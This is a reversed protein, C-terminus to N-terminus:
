HLIRRVGTSARHWITAYKVVGGAEKTGLAEASRGNGVYVSVHGEYCIIDGWRLEDTVPQGASAQEKSTRPLSVGAAKFIQCVLGSCDIGQKTDGGWKYPTGIWGDINKKLTAYKPDPQETEPGLPARIFGKWSHREPLVRLSQNTSTTVTVGEDDAALGKIEGKAGAYPLFVEIKKTVLDGHFLLEKTSWWAHPGKVAAPGSGGPVDTKYLTTFRGIEDNGQRIVVADPTREAQMKAEPDPSPEPSPSALPVPSAIPEPSALPAPTAAPIPSPTPDPSATPALLRVMTLFKRTTEQREASQSQMSKTFLFERLAPFFYLLAGLGLFSLCGITKLRVWFKKM